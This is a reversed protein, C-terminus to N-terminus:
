ITVVPVRADWANSGGTGASAAVARAHWLWRGDFELPERPGCIQVNM